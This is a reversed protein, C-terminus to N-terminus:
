KAFFQGSGWTQKLQPSGPHTNVSGAVSNRKISKQCDIGSMVFGVTNVGFLKPSGTAVTTHLSM